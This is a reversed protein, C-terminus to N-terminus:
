DPLRGPLITRLLEDSDDATPSFEARAHRSLSSAMASPTSTCEASANVAIGSAATHYRAFAGRDRRRDSRSSRFPSSWAECRRRALSLRRLATAAPDGH